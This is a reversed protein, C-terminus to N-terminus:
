QLDKCECSAEEIHIDKVYLESYHKPIIGHIKQISGAGRLQTTSLQREANMARSLLMQASAAGIVAVPTAAIAGATLM